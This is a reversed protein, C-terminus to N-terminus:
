MVVFGYENLAVLEPVEEILKNEDRYPTTAVTAMAPVSEAAVNHGKNKAVEYEAQRRIAENCDNKILDNTPDMKQAEKLDALAQTYM